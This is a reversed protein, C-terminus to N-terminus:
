FHFNDKQLAIQKDYTYYYRKNYIYACIIVRYLNRMMDFPYMIRAYVIGNSM